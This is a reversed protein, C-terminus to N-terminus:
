EIRAIIQDNYEDDYSIDIVESDKSAENVYKGAIRCVSKCRNKFWLYVIDIHGIDIVQNQENMSLKACLVSATPGLAVLVLEDNYVNTIVSNYIDELRDYANIKPCIIRRVSVCNDFLDNGVGLKTETGEVILIKRLHWIKKLSKCYNELFIFDASEYLSPHYFRTFDTNGYIYNKDILKLALRYTNFLYHKYFKYERSKKPFNLPIDHFCVLLNSNKTKFSELLDNSLNKNLSQFGVYGTELMLKMEGDGFRTVCVKNDIIYDVTELYTMIRPKKVFHKYWFFYLNESLKIASLKIKIIIKKIM